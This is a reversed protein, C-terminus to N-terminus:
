CLNAYLFMIFLFNFFIYKKFIFSAFMELIFFAPIEFDFENQFIWDHSSSRKSKALFDNLSPITHVNCAALFTFINGGMRKLERKM